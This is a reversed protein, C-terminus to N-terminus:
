GLGLKLALAAVAEDHSRWVVRVGLGAEYTHLGLRCSAQTYKMRCCHPMAIGCGM